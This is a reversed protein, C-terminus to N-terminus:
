DLFDSSYNKLMKDYDDETMDNFYNIPNVPKGRLIVEYHLHPGTSKGTSGLEGINETRSVRQGVKVNIKRLHAYRTKYGFGHDIIIQNGYGHFSYNAEVVVGDGTAYIPTGAPGVFDIGQHMAPKRTIPDRRPGFFDSIKILNKISIPQIAPVCKMMRDKNKAMEAVDDFSRSQIYARWTLEDLASYTKILVSSNAKVRLNAYRDTGGYGGKRISLPISDTEFISRYINNDKNELISLMNGLEDIQKLTLEYRLLTEANTRKLSQEVPTDYVVSFGYGLGLFIGMYFVLHILIKAVQKYFPIRIADFKLTHPNFRYKIKTM